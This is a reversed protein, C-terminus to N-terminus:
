FPGSGPKKMEALETRLSTVTRPYEGLASFFIRSVYQHSGSVHFPVGSYLGDLVNILPTPYFLDIIQFAETISSAALTNPGENIAVLHLTKEVLRHYCGCVRFM